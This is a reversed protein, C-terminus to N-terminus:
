PTVSIEILKMLEIKKQQCILLYMEIYILYPLSILAYDPEISIIIKINYHVVGLANTIRYLGYKDAKENNDRENKIM